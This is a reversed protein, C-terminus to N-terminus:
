IQYVATMKVRHIVCCLGYIQPPPTLTYWHQRWGHCPLGFVGSLIHLFLNIFLNNTWSNVYVRANCCICTNEWWCNLMLRVNLFGCVYCIDIQLILIKENQNWLFEGMRNRMLGTVFTLLPRRFLVDFTVTPPRHNILINYHCFSRWTQHLWSTVCLGSSLIQSHSLLTDTGNLVRVLM